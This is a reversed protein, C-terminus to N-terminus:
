SPKVVLYHESFLFFPLTYFNICMNRRVTEGKVSGSFFANWPQYKLGFMNNQLFMASKSVVDKVSQPTGLVYM